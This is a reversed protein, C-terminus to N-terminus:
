QPEPYQGDELIRFVIFCLTELCSRNGDESTKRGDGSSLFLGMPFLQHVLDVNAM